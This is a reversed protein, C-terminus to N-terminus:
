LELSVVFSHCLSLNPLVSLLAKPPALTLTSKDRELEDGFHGGAHSISRNYYM